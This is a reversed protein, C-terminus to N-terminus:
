ASVGRQGLGRVPPLTPSEAGWLPLVDAQHLSQPQRRVSWCLELRCRVPEPGGETTIEAAPTTEPPPPPTKGACIEKVRHYGRTSSSISM